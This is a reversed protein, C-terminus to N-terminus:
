KIIKEWLMAFKDGFRSVDKFTIILMLLLLFYLGAAHIIKELKPSVPRGKIKEVLLFLIRGGDLAPFPLFNIFALNISIIAAFQILYPLGMERMQNTMVVIGVPGSVELKVKEAQIIRGVIDRLYDAMLYALQISRIPGLKLAELFPYRTVGIRVLEIGLAGQGSPPNIRPEVAMRYLDDGRLIELVIKEGAWEQALTQLTIVKDIEIKTQNPLSVAKVTDGVKIGAEQTPSGPVVYTIQIKPDKVPSEDNAIEPFGYLFGITFLCSGLIFNMLIGAILVTFRKWVKQAAFSKPNLRAEGDEGLIKVFGGFPIANLSYIPSLIKYNKTYLHSHKRLIKWHKTKKALDKIKVLGILRPPLGFGFEEVGIGLRRAVLFHGLEHTLILLALLAFFILLLSLIDLM